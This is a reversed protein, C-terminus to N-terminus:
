RWKELAWVVALLEHETTSYNRETKNLKRSAYEVVKGDQRLVAGLGVNSANTTVEFPQTINPLHLVILQDCLKQKIIEFAENEEMGWKWPVDGKILEYLPAMISSFQPIYRRYFGSLGIFSQLQRKSKPCPFSRVCDVKEM